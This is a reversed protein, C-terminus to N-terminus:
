LVSSHKHHLCSAAHKSVAQATHLKMGSFLGPRGPLFSKAPTATVVLLVTVKVM